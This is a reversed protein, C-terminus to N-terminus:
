SFLFDPDHNIAKAILVANGISAAAVPDRLTQIIDLRLLEELSALAARSTVGGTSGRGGFHFLQAALGGRQLLDDGFLRELDAQEFFLINASPPVVFSTDRIRFTSIM